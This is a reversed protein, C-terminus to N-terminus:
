PVSLRPRRTRYVNSILSSVRLQLLSNRFPELCFNKKCVYVHMHLETPSMFVIPCPLTHTLLSDIVHVPKEGAVVPLGSWREYVVVFAHALTFLPLSLHPGFFFRIRLHMPASVFCAQARGQVSMLKPRFCTCDIKSVHPAGGWFTHPKQRVISRVFIKLMTEAIRLNYERGGCRM